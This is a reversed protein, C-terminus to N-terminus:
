QVTVPTVKNLPNTHVLMHSRLHPINLATFQSEWLSVWEGYPDVVKFNLSPCLPSKPDKQLESLTDTSIFQKILASM